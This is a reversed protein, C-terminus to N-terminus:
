AASGGSAPGDTQVDQQALGSDQHVGPKRPPLLVFRPKVSEAYYQWYLIPRGFHQNILDEISRIRYACHDIWRWNVAAILGLLVVAVIALVGSVAYPVRSNAKDSFPIAFVVIAGIYAMHSFATSIRMSIEARLTDYEKLLVEVSGDPLSKQEM